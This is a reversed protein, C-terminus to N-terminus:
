RASACEVLEYSAIGDQAALKLKRPGVYEVAITAIGAGRPSRRLRAPAARPEPVIMWVSRTFPVQELAGEQRM